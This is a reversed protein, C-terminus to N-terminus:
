ASMLWQPNRAAGADREQAQKGPWPRKMQSYQQLGHQLPHRTQHRFTRFNCAMLPPKRPPDQPRNFRLRLVALNGNLNVNKSLTADEEFLADRVWHNRIECGGWHGRVLQAFCEAAQPIRNSVYYSVTVESEKGGGPSTSSVRKTVVVLSRVHPLGCAM